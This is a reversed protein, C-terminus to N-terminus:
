NVKDVDLGDRAGALSVHRNARKRALLRPLTGVLAYPPFIRTMAQVRLPKV